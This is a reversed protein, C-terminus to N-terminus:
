AFKEIPPFRHRNERKWVDFLNKMYKLLYAVQGESANEIDVHPDFPFLGDEVQNSILDRFIEPMSLDISNSALSILQFDKEGYRFALQIRDHWDTKGPLPIAETEGESTPEPRFKDTQFEHVRLSIGRLRSYAFSNAFESEGENRTIREGDQMLLSRLSLERRITYRVLHPNVTYLNFALEGGVVGVPRFSLMEDALAKFEGQIPLLPAEVSDVQPTIATGDSHPQLEGM